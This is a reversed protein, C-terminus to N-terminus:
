LKTYYCLHFTLVHGSVEADPHNEFLYCSEHPVKLYEESVKMGQVAQCAGGRRYLLFPSSTPLKIPTEASSTNQCCFYLYPDWVFDVVNNRADNSGDSEIYIKGRSFGSPCNQHSVRHICYYGRPWSASNFQKTVECFEMSVFNMSDSYSLTVTSFASSHIEPNLIRKGRQAIKHFKHTGGFFALDVPCGTKPQLLAYFGGPWQTLSDLFTQVTALAKAAQELKSETQELKSATQELKTKTQDFESM